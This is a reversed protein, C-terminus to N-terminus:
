WNQTRTASDGLATRKKPISEPHYPDIEVVYGGRNPENPSKAIDFRNDSNKWNHGWDKEAVGYRKHSKKIEINKDTSSFYGQFNEECALYTGWPTRGAGCNAWTGLSKTGTPDSETKLKKHGRAPGTIEMETDATIKRNFASDAIINWQGNTQGIECITVGHAAKSKRIDDATEPSQTARHSFAIKNNSYENNVVLITRNKYNFLEMGDNNDGMSLEQSEGTGCTLEDFPISNSWLGDGWRTVIHWHYGEPITITDDTNANVPAFDMAHHKGPTCSSLASGGFFTMGLGIGTQQFFDRRSIRRDLIKEFDTQRTEAPFDQTSSDPNSKNM